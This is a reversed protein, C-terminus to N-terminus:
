GRPKRAAGRKPAAPTTTSRPTTKTAGAAGTAAGRSQTAPQAAAAAAAAKAAEPGVPYDEAVRIRRRAIVEDLVRKRKEEEVAQRATDRPAMPPSNPSRPASNYRILIHRARVQDNAAAGGPATQARREDVKIIHYGFVTEVVGSVEGEKLAFAAEEFPKVMQGRGFWGLDGGRGKGSPDETAENALSEFSEGSRARRLLTEIKERSAKTDLEPHSAVYADIEADTAKARATIDKAYAGALLRAQQFMVTVQTRRERELGAAIGKRMAVMVRGYHQSLEKRQAETLSAGRNPGNKAYDALFAELNAATAPEKLFAEIEAPTIVQEPATAGAERQRQFYTQAIVFARALDTQLKLEPRSLYGAAKAEEASALMRALDLSFKRREDASGSLQAIQQPQFNLGDVLLTMDRATVEVGPAATRATATPTTTRPPTGRRQPRQASLALPSALLALFALFALPALTAKKHSL